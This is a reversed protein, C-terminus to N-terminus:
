IRSNSATRKPLPAETWGQAPPTVENAFKEPTEPRWREAALKASALDAPALRVAVEDRKKAADEDGQAAVIAFWTFSSPLDQQTGIGKALLVALNYQSDRVGHNAARRFWALASAYDPKGGAGEAVLVALNHMARTNGKDAARQHWSKAITLDRPVGLGKEYMLGIRYQAPVLGHIAAKEFLRAALSLDRPMGRGDAARAALDFVAVPDGAMAAQRLGAPAAAPLQGISAMNPIRELGPASPLPENAEKLPAKLSDLRAASKMDSPYGERERPPNDASPQAAAPKPAAVPESPLAATTRPDFDDSLSPPAPEPAPPVPPVAAVKMETRPAAIIIPKSSQTSLDTAVHLAGIALVIAAAALLIPRRREGLARRAHGGASGGDRGVAGSRAAKSRRAGGQEKPSPSESAAQAARRAAAIFSAKIDAAEIPRSTASAAPLAARSSSVADAPELLIEDAAPISPAPEASAGGLHPVLEAELKRLSEEIQRSSPLAERARTEQTPKATGPELPTDQELTALRSVVKDITTHVAALTEQTWKGTEGQRLKLDALENRLASIDPAGAGPMSRLTHIVASRVAREATEATDSSLRKMEALLDGMARELSALAPQPMSQEIRQSLGAVEKVLGGIESNAATRDIKEGLNRLMEEIPKLEVSGTGRGLNQNLSDIREILANIAAPNGGSTLAGDIRGALRGLERTVNENQQGDSHARSTVASRIEDVASSLSTFDSNGFHRRVHAIQHNLGAVQETLARLRQPDAMDKLLGRVEGLEGSLREVLAPSVGSGLMGDIKRSIAQLDLAARNKADASVSESLRRLEAQVAALPQAIGNLDGASGRTEGVKRGLEHVAHELSSVEQRTALEGVSSRLNEIEDRLGSAAEAAQANPREDLQGALRSFDDRLSRLMETQSRSANARSANPDELEWQRSRIEEIATNLDARPDGGARAPRAGLNAVQAEIRQVATLAADLSPQQGEGIKREIDDLRRTMLGIADSLITATREQGESALRATESLRGETREVWQAVSDLAMATKEATERARREHDSASALAAEMDRDRSAKRSVDALKQAVLELDAAISTDSPDLSAVTSAVSQRM